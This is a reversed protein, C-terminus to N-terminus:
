GVKRQFKRLIARVKEKRTPKDLKYFDPDLKTIAIERNSRAIQVRQDISITLKRRLSSM